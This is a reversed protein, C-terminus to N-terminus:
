EKSFPSTPNSRDAAMPNARDTALPNARDTALPNARDTALPNARDTALPNARDTALPNARDSLPSAALPNGASVKVETIDQGIASKIQNRQDETLKITVEKTEAM